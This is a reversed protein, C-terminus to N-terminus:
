TIDGQFLLTMLQEISAEEIDEPVEQGSTYYALGKNYKVMLNVITGISDTEDLKTFVFKQFPLEQFQDIIQCMDQQKSTAALVIYTETEETFSVLKKMEEIYRAEKYNRGATDIFIREQTQLREIAAAYDSSTYVVELPAQLLSAYTKLQEIAAIRYTDTTMFGVKKKQELVTRAAMKAITTTKGVGTPGLLNVYRISADCAGFPLHKLKDALIRKAEQRLIATTVNRHKRLHIFLEDGIYTILEDDLEQQKLYQLLAVLEQPYKTQEQQRSMSQVMAKLDAIENRLEQTQETAVPQPQVQMEQKPLVATPFDATKDFVPKVVEDIGATVEFQKTTVLGLFKKTTIMRQSLIVAEEGLEQRIQLMAEPMTQAYFKKMKM